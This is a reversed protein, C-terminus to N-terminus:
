QVGTAAQSFTLLPIGNTVLPSTGSIALPPSSSTWQPNYFGPQIASSPMTGIVYGDLSLPTGSSGSDSGTTSYVVNHDWLNSDQAWTVKTCDGSEWTSGSWVWTSGPAGIVFSTSTGSAAYLVNSEFRYPAGDYYHIYIALAYPLTLSAANTNIFVNRVIANSQSNNYFVPLPCNLFINDAITVNSSGEDSYICPRFFNIALSSGSANHNTGCLQFLNSQYVNGNTLIPGTGVAFHYGYIVGTDEGRQMANSISNYTFKFGDEDYQGCVNQQINFFNNHSVTSTYNAAAASAQYCIIGLDHINNSTILNNVGWWLNVGGGLAQFIENSVVTCGYAYAGQGGIINGGAIGM